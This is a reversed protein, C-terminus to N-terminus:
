DGSARRWGCPPELCFNVKSSISAVNEYQVPLQFLIATRLTYTTHITNKHEHINKDQTNRGNDFHIERRPEHLSCVMTTKNCWPNTWFVVRTLVSINARGSNHFSSNRGYFGSESLGRSVHVTGDGELCENTGRKSWQHCWCM